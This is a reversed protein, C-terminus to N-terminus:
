RAQHRSWEAAPLLLGSEQAAAVRGIGFVAQRRDERHAQRRAGADVSRHCVRAGLGRSRARCGSAEERKKEADTLQPPRGTRPAAALARRGNTKLAQQWRWVSTRSAKLRRAVESPTVGARLLWAGEMRRAELAARDRKKGMVLEMNRFERLM